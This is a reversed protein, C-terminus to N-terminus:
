QGGFVGNVGFLANWENKTMYNIPSCARKWDKCACVGKLRSTHAARLSVIKDIPVGAPHHPFYGGCECNASKNSIGQVIKIVKTGGFVGEIKVDNQLVDLLVAANERDVKPQFYHEMIWHPRGGISVILGNSDIAFSAGLSQSALERSYIESIRRIPTCCRYNSTVAIEETFIRKVSDVLINLLRNGKAPAEVSIDQLDLEWSRVDLDLVSQGDDYYTIKTGLDDNFVLALTDQFSEKQLATISSLFDTVRSTCKELNVRFALSLDLVPPELQINAGQRHYYGLIPTPDVAELFNAQLHKFSALGDLNCIRVPSIKDDAFRLLLDAVPKALEPGIIGSLADKLDNRGDTRFTWYSASPSYNQPALEDGPFHKQFSSKTFTLCAFIFASGDKSILRQFREKLM